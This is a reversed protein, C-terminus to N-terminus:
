CTRTERKRTFYHSSAQKQGLSVVREQAIEPAQFLSEEVKLRAQTQKAREQVYPNEDGALIELLTSVTWANEAMAYRVDCSVDAALSLVTSRLTNDNQAVAARVDASEHQALLELTESDTARNEAVRRQVSTNVRRALCNLIGPKTEQSSALRNKAATFLNWRPAIGIEDIRREHVLAPTVINM